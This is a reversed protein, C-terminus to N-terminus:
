HLSLWIHIQLISIFQWVSDENERENRKSAKWKKIGEIRKKAEQCSESEAASMIKIYTIKIYINMSM